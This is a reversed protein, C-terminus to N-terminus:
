NLPSDTKRDIFNIAAKRGQDILFNKDTESLGFDTSSITGVDVKVTRKWDDSDVHIKLAQNRLISFLMLIYDIINSPPQSNASVHPNHVEYLEKSTMLKFGVVEEHKLIGDLYDIPYNALLGGDTYFHHIKKDVVEGNELISTVLDEGDAKFFIPMSSSRRVAIKIKMDPSNDPNHYITKGTNVDTVTVVLYNGFQDHIQKFTIEPDVGLKVLSDHYWSEMMDGKYWGFKFFLRYIDRFYGKSDDKFINFDTEFLIRKLYAANGGCALAGAIIAGASSGVFYKVNKFMGKEEFVEISGVHAIGAAGGGEFIAGRLTLPGDYEQHDRSDM